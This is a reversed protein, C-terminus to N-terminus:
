ALVRRRRGAFLLLGGGVLMVVGLAGVGIVAIKM